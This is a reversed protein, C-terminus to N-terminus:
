TLVFVTITHDCLIPQIWPRIPLFGGALRQIRCKEIHKIRNPFLLLYPIALYIRHATSRWATENRAARGNNKGANQSDINGFIPDSIGDVFIAKFWGKNTGGINGDTTGGSRTPIAAGSAIM